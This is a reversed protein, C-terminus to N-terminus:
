AACCLGLDKKLASPGPAVGSAEGADKGKTPSPAGADDAGEGGAEFPADDAADGGDQASATQPSHASSAMAHGGGWGGVDCAGRMPMSTGGGVNAGFFARTPMSRASFGFPARTNQHRCGQFRRQEMLTGFFPGHLATSHRAVGPRTRASTPRFQASDPLINPCSRSDDALNARFRGLKPRNRVIERSTSWLQGTMLWKHGSSPLGHGLNSHQGPDALTARTRGVYAQVPRSNYIPNGRVWRQSWGLRPTQCLEHFSKQKVNMIESSLCTEDLAAPPPVERLRLPYAMRHTAGVVQGIQAFADCQSGGRRSKTRSRCHEKMGQAMSSTGSPPEATPVATAARPWPTSARRGARREMRGLRADRLAGHLECVRRNRPGLPNAASLAGIGMLFLWARLLRRVM